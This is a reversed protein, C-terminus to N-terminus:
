ARRRNDNAARLDRATERLAMAQAELRLKVPQNARSKIKEASKENWDAVDRLSQPTLGQAIAQELSVTRPAGDATRPQATSHNSM